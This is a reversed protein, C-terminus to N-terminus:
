GAARDALDRGLRLVRNQLDPDLVHRPLPHPKRGDFYRGDIAGAPATVLATCSAAARDPDARRQFFRVIPWIYRWAPVADPTLAQTGPTWAMGPNVAVASLRGGRHQGALATTWVLALLKASALVGLPAYTQESQLDDLPDGKAMTFASSIVNVLRASGSALLLPLLSGTLVFPAVFNLALTLEYGDGTTIRTPQLGGVNNVLVDLRGLRSRLEEALALNAAVTAHDVRLFEVREHGAARRLQTAAETGRHPDRGTVLVTAGRTALRRATAFGIGSTAGTVLASRNSLSATGDTGAGRARRSDLARM